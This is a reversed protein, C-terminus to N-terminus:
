RNERQDRLKEDEIEADVDFAHCSVLPPSLANQRTLKREPGM